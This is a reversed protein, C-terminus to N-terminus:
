TVHRQTIVVDEEAGVWFCTQKDTETEKDEQHTIAWTMRSRRWSPLGSIDSTMRRDPIEPSNTSEVKRSEQEAVEKQEEEQGKKPVNKLIQKHLYLNAKKNKNQKQSTARSRSTPSICMICM